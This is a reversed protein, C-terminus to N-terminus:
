GRRRFGAIFMADTGHRHPWLRHTLAQGEPGPVPAPQGLFGKDIIGQDVADQGLFCNWTMGAHDLGVCGGAIKGAIM